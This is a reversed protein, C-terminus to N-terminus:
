PHGASATEVAVAQGQSRPTRRLMLVSCDDSSSPDRFDQLQDALEVLSGDSASSAVLACLRELEDPLYARRRDVLGDTFLILLDGDELSRSRQHRSVSDDVGVPLDAEGELLETAGNARRLVAPMHGARTFTVTALDESLRALLVTTFQDGGVTSDVHELITAPQGDTVMAVGRLVNRVEVMHSVSTPSHGSVDGIAVLIAGDPMVMADYWDGGSDAHSAAPLYRAEFELGDVEPLSEPLFWSRVGAELEEYEELAAVRERASIVASGGVLLSLLFLAAFLFGSQVEERGAAEADEVVLRGIKEHVAEILRIVDDIQRSSDQFWAQLGPGEMETSNDSTGLVARIGADVIESSAAGDLGAISEALNVGDPTPVSVLNSAQEVNSHFERDVISLEIVLEEPLEGNALAGMVVVRRRGAADLAALLANNTRRLRVLEISTTGYAQDALWERIPRVVSSYLVDGDAVEGVRFQERVSPLQDISAVIRDQDAELELEPGLRDLTGLVQVIVMDTSEAAEEYASQTNENSRSLLLHGQGREREVAALLDITRESVEQLHRAQDADRQDERASRVSLVFAVALGASVLVALASVSAPSGVADLLRRLPGRDRPAPM